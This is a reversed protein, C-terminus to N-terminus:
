WFSKSASNRPETDHKLLCLVFGVQIASRYQAEPEDVAALQEVCTKAQELNGRLLARNHEMKAESAM